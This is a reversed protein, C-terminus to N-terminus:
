LITFIEKFPMLRSNSKKLLGSSIKSIIPEEEKRRGGEEKGGKKTEKERVNGEEDGRIIKKFPPRHRTLINQGSWNQENKSLL